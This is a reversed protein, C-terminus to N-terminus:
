ILITMKSVARAFRCDSFLGTFTATTPAPKMARPITKCIVLETGPISTTAM